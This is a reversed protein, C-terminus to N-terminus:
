YCTVTQCGPATVSPYIWSMDTVTGACHMIRKYPDVAQQNVHCLYSSWRKPERQRQKDVAEGPSQVLPSSWIWVKRFVRCRKWRDLAELEGKTAEALHPQSLAM